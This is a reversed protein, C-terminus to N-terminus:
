SNTDSSCKQVRRDEQFCLDMRRRWSYIVEVLKKLSLKPPTQLYSVCTFSEMSRIYAFAHCFTCGEFHVSIPQVTKIFRSQFNGSWVNFTIINESIVNSFHYSPLTYYSIQTIAWLKILSPIIINYFIEIQITM